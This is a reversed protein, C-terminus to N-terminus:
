INDKNLDVVRIHSEEMLGSEVLRDVAEMAEKAFLWDYTAFVLDRHTRSDCLVDYFIQKDAKGSIARVGIVVECEAIFENDDDTRSGPLDWLNKSGCFENIDPVISSVSEAIFEPLLNLTSRGERLEVDVFGMVVRRMTGLRMKKELNDLSRGIREVKTESAVKPNRVGRTTLVVSAIRTM